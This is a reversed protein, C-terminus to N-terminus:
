RLQPNNVNAQFYNIHYGYLTVGWEWDYLVMCLSTLSTLPLTYQTASQLRKLCLWCATSDFNRTCTQTFQKRHSETVLCHGNGINQAFFTSVFISCKTFIITCSVVTLRQFIWLLLHRTYFARMLRVRVCSIKNSYIELLPTLSIEPFLMMSSRCRLVTAVASSRHIAALLRWRVDVGNHVRNSDRCLVNSSVLYVTSRTFVVM